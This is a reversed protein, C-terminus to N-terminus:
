DKISELNEKIKKYREINSNMAEISNEISDNIAKIKHMEVNRIFNTYDWNSINVGSHREISDIFNSREKLRSIELDKKKIECRAEILLENNKRMAESLAWKQADESAKLYIERYINDKNSEQRQMFRRMVAACFNSNIPISDLLPAKVSARLGGGKRPVMLGWTKPLEDKKVIDKDGCVIWWRDCYKQVDASKAHNNLESLWDTRSIKVEFGEIEMGRSPWLGFAIADAYRRSRSGTANSVQSLFAYSSDDYKKALHKIVEQESKYVM